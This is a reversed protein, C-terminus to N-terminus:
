AVLACKDSSIYVPLDPVIPYQTSNAAWLIDTYGLYALSLIGIDVAQMSSGLEADQGMVTFNNTNIYSLTFSERFYLRHNTSLWAPPGFYGVYVIQFLSYYM